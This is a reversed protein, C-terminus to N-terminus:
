MEEITLVAAYLAGMLAGISTGAVYDFEIGAEKFARMVGVYSFGRVGGGSFVIGTKLKKEEKQKKNPKFLGKFWEGLKM